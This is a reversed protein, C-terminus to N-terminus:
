AMNMPDVDVTIGMRESSSLRALTTRILFSLPADVPARLVVHRRYLSKLRSLPAPAPGILEVEKPLTEKFAAALAHARANAAHSDEDSCILNAFRSFPPYFLEERFAIEKEYFGPYDQRMARQVSYHEPSFTQIVVTGPHEGRGARGAVQTLLQFTREAARFDPMNISTDASIVGVLTVNPFDLGKAVMQTGILIDAEGVRFRRLIGAHAGKRTTTDRDLRAVRASPFHKYVEEEVKETGVGFGRIRGGGCSPCITPASRGYDCHHCKLANWAAHFTLSVACHPCRAVYGCDRCLIFQSYGRRNLFLIAQQKRGLREGLEEILQRSFLAKHEKFEERLDVVSVRPLPRNDIREPIELLAMQGRKAAYYTELAPTASGLVVAAGSLRAREFVADRAHYRPLSEQKYSAEHEEDVVILGINDMPAFVASRAGVVIRAHGEQLRRWEDHREGESLRSHLVAVEDGFRGTFIEVVQTTLAIEPVLVIASRGAQLTREIAHLYVETKGSATVGFLLATNPTPRQANPTPHEPTRTNLHEPTSRQDAALMEAVRRAATSQGPTLPPPQTRGAPLNHPARRAPIERVIIAGKDALTKLAGSSAQAATLLREPLVPTEGRRTFEALADLIRQGADSMRGSLAGAAMGLEYARVMRAVVKARSVARTEQLLGKRILAAYSGAFASVRAAERLTEIEAVGGLSRLTELIHAQVLSDGADRATISEDALRVVTVVRAGMAAPAICRVAASLDCVYRAAIWRALAAQEANFTIAGEVPALIDRLRAHLSDSASIRRREIVYGLKEQGGFPVHVCTGVAVSARLHEPVRYSYAPLLDPADIEVVVDAVDAENYEEWLSGTDTETHRQTPRV